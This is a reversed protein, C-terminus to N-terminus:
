GGPTFVGTVRGGADPAGGTFTSTGDRTNIVLQASNITGTANTVVVNGALTLVRQAVDYVATDSDATQGDFSMRVRGGSAELRQLDAPGGAGYRVEVRQADMTMADQTIVVNGTFIAISSDEDIELTDATIEVPADAQQSLAGFGSPDQALGPQPIAFALGILVAFLPRTMM